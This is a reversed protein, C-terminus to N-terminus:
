GWNLYEQRLRSAAESSREPHGKLDLYVQVPHVCSIEKNARSGHFVGEDNPVVLWTNAGREDERFSLMRILKKSPPYHLYVTAIRFNAFYTYLWAAALGTAAYKIEHQTLISSIRQLLADGSRATIHGKIIYHRSFDYVEHWADLLENPDYPKLSGEDNRIILKNKELRRAIRSTHGEDMGTAHSLERQTLNRDPEILLQRSIRSSKSAFLNPPRGARKFRNPLGEIHILLRPAKIHANGSLDLWALEHKDCFRRGSEGMFSVVILPIANQWLTKRVEKLQTVTLLLSARASSSKCEVLFTHEGADVVFDYGADEEVQSLKVSAEPIELFKALLDPVESKAQNEFSNGM